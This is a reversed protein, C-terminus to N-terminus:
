RKTNKAPRVGLLKLESEDMFYFCQEKVLARVERRADAANYEVPVSVTVTMTVQKRTKAM